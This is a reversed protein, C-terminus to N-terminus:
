GQWLWVQGRQEINLIENLVLRALGLLAYTEHGYKKLGESMVSQRWNQALRRYKKQKSCTLQQSMKM